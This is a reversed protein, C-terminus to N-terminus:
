VRFSIEQRRPYDVVESPTEDRNDRVHPNAGHDLLLRLFELHGFLAALHLPTWGGVERGNVDAGRNLLLRGVEM